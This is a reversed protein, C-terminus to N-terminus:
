VAKQVPQAASIDLEFLPKQDKVSCVVPVEYLGNNLVKETYFEIYQPHKFGPLTVYAGQIFYPRNAKNVGQRIIKEVDLRLKM